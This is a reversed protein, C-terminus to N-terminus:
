WRLQRGDGVRFFMRNLVEMVPLEEVDPIHKVSYDLTLRQPDQRHAFVSMRTPEVVVLNIIETLGVQRLSPVPESKALGHGFRSINV